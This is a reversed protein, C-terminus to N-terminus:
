DLCMNASGELGGGLPNPLSHAPYSLVFNYCMESTTSEGFGVASSGPNMWTCTTTLTDGPHV